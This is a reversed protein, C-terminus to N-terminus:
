AFHEGPILPEFGLSHESLLVCGNVMAGIARQWELYGLESRHVNMLLKSDRLMEWKRAGSLFHESDAQEPLFSEFLHLETRRGALHRACRALATLRRPTAGGQFTLAVPRESAHDAHWNDWSPVYGLQLLKADIGLKKLAAVGIRNIDIAAAARKAIRADEDFWTTGPQETCITVSRQLQPESPHADPMLLPLLEHPVFVYVLEDRLPPFHDVA